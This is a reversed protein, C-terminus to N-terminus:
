LSWPRTEGHENGKSDVRLAGLRLITAPAPPVADSLLTVTRRRFDIKRIIGLAFDEGSGRALSCVLNEYDAEAATQLSTAHFADLARAADGDDVPTTTVVFLVSGTLEAHVAAPVHRDLDRLTLPRGSGLRSGEISLRDLPVEQETASEIFGMWRAKRQAANVVPPFGSELQVAEPGVNFGDPTLDTGDAILISDPHTAEALLLVTQRAVPGPRFAPAQIIVEAQAAQLLVAAATLLVHPARSADLSGYFRWLRLQEGHYLSLVAPHPQQNDAPDLCVLDAEGRNEKLWGRWSVGAHGILLTRM